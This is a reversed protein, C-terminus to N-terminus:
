ISFQPQAEENDGQSNSCIGSGEALHSREHAAIMPKTTGFLKLGRYVVSSPRYCRGLAWVSLGWPMPSQPQGLHTGMPPWTNKPSFHHISAIIGWYTLHVVNSAINNNALWPLKSSQIWSSPSLISLVKVLNHHHKPLHIYIIPPVRGM